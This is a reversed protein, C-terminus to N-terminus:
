ARDIVKAFAAHSSQAVPEQKLRMWERGNPRSAPM